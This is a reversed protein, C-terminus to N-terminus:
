ICDSVESYLHTHSLFYHVRMLLQRNYHYLWVSWTQMYEFLLNCSYVSWQAHKYFM